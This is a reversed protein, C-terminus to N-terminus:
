ARGKFLEKKMHEVIKHAVKDLEGKNGSAAWIVSNDKAVLEVAGNYEDRLHVRLGFVSRASLSKGESASQGQLIYDASAEDNVVVFPLKQHLIEATIFPALDSGTSVGKAGSVVMPVVYIKSGSVPQTQAFVVSGFLLAAVAILYKM